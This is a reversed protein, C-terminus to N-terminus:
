NIKKVFLPALTKWAEESPDKFKEIDFDNLEKTFIIQINDKKFDNLAEEWIEREDFYVLLVLKIDPNIKKLESNLTKIHLKIFDMNKEYGNFSQFRSTLLSTYWIKEVLRYIISGEIFPIKSTHLKLTNDKKAEYRPYLYKNLVFNNDILPGPYVRLRISDNRAPIFYLAYDSNKIIDDISHSQVQMIAQQFGGGGVSRNYVKRHMAQSVYYDLSKYEDPNDNAIFGCGFLIVSQGKYEQGSPPIFEINKLYEKVDLNKRNFASFENIESHGCLCLVLFLFLYSFFLLLFLILLKLVFKKM